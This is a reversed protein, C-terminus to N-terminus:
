SMAEQAILSAGVNSASSGTTIAVTLLDPQNGQVNNFLPFFQTLDYTQLAGPPLPANYVVEGGTLASASVDREAFSNLSGLKYATEFTPSTLAVPSSFTSAILEITANASAYIQLTAPLIQGRNILGIIYNTPTGNLIPVPGGTVNDVVTLSNPTNSIIRGIPGQGLTVTASGTGGTGTTTSVYTFQSSSTVTVQYTGNYATTTSVGAITVFRGTTLNHGAATVTVLSGSGSIASIALTNGRFWVYKGAYANPVWPTGSAVPVTTSTAGQTIAGLSAGGTPLTGNAGSYATDVGYEMTGMTRYRVSLVPYRTTTANVTRTPTGPAMGYGYTFGRQTDIKGEALVSVGFHSMSSATSAGVNRLEYRVPLNGTRSWPTVQNPLNGIGIQHLVYPEGNIVVGWRLLGAGYWAYEIYLMNIRNWNISQAIQYTDTWQNLPIKIDFPVSQVDSRYVVNMGTPNTSTPDGQEFFCGNADDFFGVRQRQNVYPAGFVFGTSMFITKGPQYRIYPRTQRIAVDGNAATVSMVVGGINSTATITAGGSTYQEWRMPQPGYEFDAEFLNQGESVKLKGLNDRLRQPQTTMLPNRENVAGSTGALINQQEIAGPM